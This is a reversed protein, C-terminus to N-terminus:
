ICEAHSQNYKSSNLIMRFKLLNSKLEEYADLVGHPVFSTGKNLFLMFKQVNRTHRKLRVYVNSSRALLDSVLTETSIDDPWQLGHIPLEPEVMVSSTVVGDMHFSPPATAVLLPLNSTLASTTNNEVSWPQINLVNIIPEPETRM